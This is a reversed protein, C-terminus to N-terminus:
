VDDRNTARILAGRAQEGIGTFSADPRPRAEEDNTTMARIRADAAPEGLQKLRKTAADRARFDSSGLQNVLCAIEKDDPDDAVAPVFPLLLLLFAFCRILWTNM